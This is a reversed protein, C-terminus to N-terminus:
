LPTATHEHNRMEEALQAYEYDQNKLNFRPHKKNYEDMLSHTEIKNNLITDKIM